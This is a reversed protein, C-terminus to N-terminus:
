LEEDICIHKITYLTYVREGGIAPVTVINTTRKKLFKEKKIRGCAAFRITEVPAFHTPSNEMPAGVRPQPLSSAFASGHREVPAATCALLRQWEM